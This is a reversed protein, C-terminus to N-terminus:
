PGGQLPTYRIITSAHVSHFNGITINTTACLPSAGALSVGSGERTWFVRVEARLSTRDDPEGAAVDTLWCLRYHTCFAISKQHEGDLDMVDAGYLDSASSHGLTANVQNVMDGAPQLWGTSDTCADPNQLYDTSGVGSAGAANWLLADTRLREMWRDAVETAQTVRRSYLNARAIFGQLSFLAAAGVTMVALSMMLEIMTFGRRRRSAAGGGRAARGPLVPARPGGNSAHVGPAPDSM